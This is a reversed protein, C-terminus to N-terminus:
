FRFKETEAEFPEVTMVRVILPFTKKTQKKKKVGYKQVQNVKLKPVEPM